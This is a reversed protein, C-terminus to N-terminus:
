GDIRVALRPFEYRLFESAATFFIGSRGLRRKLALSMHAMVRADLGAGAWVLVLLTGAVLAGRHTYPSM